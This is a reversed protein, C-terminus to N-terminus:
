LQASVETPALHLQMYPAFVEEARERQLRVHEVLSDIRADYKQLLETLETSPPYSEANFKREERIGDLRMAQERLENLYNPIETGRFIFRADSTARTFEEIAILRDQYKTRHFVSTNILNEAAVLIQKAKEYLVLRAQRETIEMQREAIQTQRKALKLAMVAVILPGSAQLLQFSWYFFGRVYDFCDISEM